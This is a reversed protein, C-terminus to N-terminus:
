KAAERLDDAIQGARAADASELDGLLRAVTEAEGAADTGELAAVEQDAFERLQKAHERAYPGLTRDGAVGDALLAGEAALSKVTELHQDTTQSGCGAVLVAVAALLSLWRRM